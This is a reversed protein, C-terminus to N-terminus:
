QSNAPSSFLCAPPGRAGEGKLIGRLSCTDVQRELGSAYHYNCNEMWRKASPCLAWNFVSSESWTPVAYIQLDNSVVQIRTWDLVLLKYLVKGLAIRGNIAINVGTRTESFRCWRIECKIDIGHSHSYRFISLEEM